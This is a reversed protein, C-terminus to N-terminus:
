RVNWPAIVVVVGLPDRVIVSEANGDGLKVDENAEQIM